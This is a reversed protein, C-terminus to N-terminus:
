LANKKESVLWANGVPDGSIRGCREHVLVGNAFYSRYFTVDFNYVSYKGKFRENRTVKWAEKNIALLTDGIMIKRSPMWGKDRVWFLHDDTTQIKKTQGNEDTYWIERIHDSIKRHIRKVVDTKGDFTIVEDSVLLDKIPKQSGDAMLILTDPVFCPFEGTFNKTPNTSPSVKGKKGSPSGFQQAFCSIANGIFSVPNSIMSAANYISFGVLIANAVNLGSNGYCFTRGAFASNLGYLGQFLEAFGGTACDAFNASDFRKRKTDGFYATRYPIYIEEMAALEPVYTILPELLGWSTEATSITLDHIKILGYNQVRVTFNAEFGPTVNEFDKKPPDVVLVGAPVHTEFTQEIKIEYRDTFPVPEVTFNITVLSRSLMPEVLQQQGAIIDVLGAESSHGSAVVKWSWKGEQLDTILAEGKEDTKVPSLDKRIATNRLYIAANELEQGLINIVKFKASGTLNSTIMAFLKVEFTQETNVGKFIVKDKHYGFSTNDPPTFIIDFTFSDGVHIDSLITIGDENTPLNIRMWSIEAPPVLEVGRLDELGKNSITVTVTKMKGRDMSIDVYGTSPEDVSIIPVAPLLSVNGLFTVRAGQSTIFTYEVGAADPADIDAHLQLGVSRREGPKLSFVDSGYDVTGDLKTEETENGENDVTFARFDFTFNELTEEGPNYLAVKFNMTDAKSMRIDGTQPSCYMRFLDFTDQKIIDFVDPHAGWITFHGSLGIPANYIFTYNGNEDAKVDQFWKFGRTYFGVKLDADPKPTNTRRDIAQGTIVVNEKNTYVEKDTQATAFYESRTIGSTLRGSIQGSELAPKKEIQHYVPKVGGEFTLITGAELGQPVLIDLDVCTKEGPAIRLYATGDNSVRTGPPFGRYEAKSIVIDSANQITVYIDGPDAGNNKSVVVDMDAFGHNNMCIQITAYGGALPLENTTMEIAEGPRNIDDIYFNREYIVKNGSNDFSIATFIINRNEVGDGSARVITESYPQSNSVPVNITKEWTFHSGNLHIQKLHFNEVPSQNIVSIQFLNFVNSILARANGNDDPNIRLDLLIPYVSVIRAPSEKGDSNVGRVAYQIISDGSYYHDIFTTQTTMHANLKQGGKYIHYGVVHPDNNEWTIHPVNEHLMHVELKSVAGVEMSFSVPDAPNENDVADVAAVIYEYVGGTQPHDSLSFQDGAITKIKLSNRYIYYYNVEEEPADWSLIVGTQGMLVSVNQPAQPPTRDSIVSVTNSLTSGAGKKNARVGYCYTGDTDPLDMCELDVIHESILMSPTESCDGEIRFINYHEAREASDWKLLVNGGSQSTATMNKPAQPPDPLDTNYIELISGKNIANGINGSVDTAELIFHGDGKGMDPKLRLVGKWHDDFASVPINVGGGEPPEFRLIPISGPQLPENLLLTIDIEITEIIQVPEDANILIDAVPGDTDILLDTGSPNGTFTNGTMDQGSITIDAVGSPTDKSITYIGNYLLDDTKTLKISEPSTVGDPLILLTPKQSLKEDVALSIQVNGVGFPPMKDFSIEFSPPTADYAIEVWNSLKSSNGAKDLGAVAYYFIGDIPPNNVFTLDYQDTKILTAQNPDSFPADHRYINFTEPREGEEAYQWQLIIGIGATIKPALLVPPSPPGSDLVIDVSNSSPSVGMDDMAAAKIVNSGEVLGVHDVQFHGNPGAQISAVVFANRRIELAIGPEATGHVTVPGTHVLMDKSPETIVPAKPPTIDIVINKEATAINDAKDKALLKIRYIGNELSRVDWYFTFPSQSVTEILVDNMYLEISALGLLATASSSVTLPRHIIQGEEITFTHIVPGETVYTLDISTLDSVAGTASKFQVFVTKSGGGESLKFDHTRTYNDFYANAFTSDESIRMEKASRCALKLVINRNGVTTENNLTGIAPTLLPEHSLYPEFDINGSMKEAITAEQLSGWWNEKAHLITAGSAAANKDTNLKIVSNTITLQSNDEIQVGIANYMILADSTNVVAGNTLNLGYSSNNLCSIADVQPSSRNIELGKGYEIIVHNLISTDSNEVTIGNWNGPSESSSNECTMVIPDLPTGSAILAGSKVILGSGNRFKLITGPTIFLSAGEMVMITNHIAIEKQQGSGIILDETIQGAYPDKWSATEVSQEYEDFVNYAVVAFYWIKSRDLGNVELEKTDPDIIEQGQLDEVSHFDIDQYYLKFGQFGCLNQTAYDQWSIVASDPEKGPAVTISTVPPVPAIIEIKLPNVQFIKNGAQDVSVIAAYYLQNLELATLHFTRADENVWAIPAHNEITDFSDDKKVFVQFGGLDDPPTYNWAIVATDCTLQQIKPQPAPPPTADLFFSYVDTVSSMMNGVLDQGGSIHTVTINGDMEGSMSIDPTVFTDNPHLTTMWTGGSPIVPNTEGSGVMDIIPVANTDMSSNFKITLRFNDVGSVPSIYNAQISSFEPKVTDVINLTVTNSISNGAKDRLINAPSITENGAITFGKTIVIICQTQDNNWIVKNLHGYLKGQPSLNENAETSNDSLSSSNMSENFMFFYRDGISVTGSGDLDDFFVDVIEPQVNDRGLLYHSGQVSNGAMDSVFNGPIVQEDGIITFGQSVTLTLTKANSGWAIANTSGYKLGGFPRLHVNADQTGDKIVSVNMAENFQFVYQDGLSLVDNFDIDIWDLRTFVPAVTDIVPLIQTGVAMNGFLDTLQFPSVSEQGLISFGQTLTIILTKKDVTWRITNTQGFNLDGEVQFHANADTTADVILSTDMEESFHFYYEDGISLSHSGDLDNFEVSELHPPTLESIDEMLWIEPVAVRMSTDPNDHVFQLRLEGNAYYSSPLSFEFQVPNSTPMHRSDHIINDNGDFLSQISGGPDGNFYSTRIKYRKATDLATYDVIVRNKDWAITRDPRKQSADWEDSLTGQSLEPPSIAGYHSSSEESFNIYSFLTAVATQFPDFIVKDSIENGTADPNDVAHYPGSADSDGWWTQRADLINSTNNKVGYERNMFIRNNTLVPNSNNNAEIGDSFNTSISNFTIQPNSNGYLYIGNGFSGWIKNGTLIPSAHHCAIGNQSSNSFESNEVWIDANTIQLTHYYRMIVHNFHSSKEFFSDNFTIGMWDGNMPLSDSGDDNSDGQYSDDKISTFVIKNESTGDAILAGNVIIRASSAFKITVGPDITLFTYLPVSLTNHLIYTSTENPTDKAWIRLNSHNQIENGLIEIYNKTNPCLVNTADPLASAPIRLSIQNNIIINDTITSSGTANYYYIGYTTNNQIHNSDIIPTAYDVCIGTRNDHITNGQDIPTSNSQHYIGHDTNNSIICNKIVSSANFTQIGHSSSHSIESSIVSMDCQSISLGGYLIKVHELISSEANDFYIRNWYGRTGESQGDNNTDGGHNDDTYATFVIPDNDTGIAVLSGEVTIRRNQALKIIAGSRFTIKVGDPISLNSAIYYLGRGLSMDTSITGGLTIKANEANMTTTSILLGNSENPVEDITTLKFYYVQDPSLDSEHYNIAHKGISYPISNDYDPHNSGFLTGDTSIYLLQDALDGDSNLSPEWSLYVSPKTQPIQTVSVALNSIDEPPTNDTNGTSQVPGFPSSHTFNGARDVAAIYYYYDVDKSVTDDFLTNDKSTQGILDYDFGNESRYIDYRSIDGDASQKWTLRIGGSVGSLNQAFLDTPLEPPTTDITIHVIESATKRNGVKDKARAQIIYEGDSPNEWCYQWFGQTTITSAYHWKITGNTNQIGVEVIKVGTDIDSVTGSIIIEKPQLVDGNHPHTLHIEPPTHDSSHAKILMIESVVTRLGSVSNFFLKLNGSEMSSSPIAFHYQVPTQSPLIMPSHIMKDNIDTLTQVTNLADKNLFTILIRYPSTSSLGMYEATIQKEELSYLFSDTNHDGWEQSSTGSVVPQLIGYGYHDTGGANFYSFETGDTLFHDYNIYESVEDGTGPGDGGPGDSAGWWVGTAQITSHSINRIGYAHNGFIECHTLSTPVSTEIGNNFNSFVKCNIINHEGSYELSIGNNANSFIDNNVFTISSQLARFGNSISNSIQSNKISFGTQYAYILGNHYSGGYRLIAHDINCLSGNAQNSVYIGRWDGNLPTSDNGDENFDGGSWDDKYSTFVIPYESTGIASIAGHITLGSNSYFKVIVGPDITLTYEPNMTLTDYIQYTNIEHAEGQYLVKFHLDKNRQNGRMWIGNLTNPGLINNDETGPIASGPLMVGYKNGTITNEKIIPANDAQQFCIGWEHNNTIINRKIEPTARFVHIGNSNGSITNDVDKPTSLQQYYGYHYLGYDNCNSIRNGQLLPSSEDTYIGHSSSKEIHCSVISIDANKMYVAGQNNRGAYRVSVNELRTMFDVVSDSFSIHRWDGPTGISFGDGNTDGGYEDDQYSTFVIKESDSGAAYFAGQVYLGTNMAFKWIVGPEITLKVGTAITSNGSVQYYVNVPSSKLTLSRELVNGLIEIQNNTNPFFTNGANNDPLSSFPVRLSINNNTITNNKIEFSDGTNNCFIGYTANHTITNGDIMPKASQVYIGCKDNYSITNNKILPSANYVYIGHASSQSIESSIISIESQSIYINGNSGGFYIKVYELISSTANEFVIRDWYGKSGMSVGDSNSDGAYTDDSFATFIIPNDHTGIATLTGRVTLRRGAAFKVIVGPKITLAAGYDVTLHNSVYFVGASWTTDTNITGSITTFATTSPTISESIVGHSINGSSDKTRIRVQYATDNDLNQIIYVTAEKGISLAKQWTQGNDTSIELLQDMLDLITNESKTWSLYIFENGPIANLQTVDEPPITDPIENNISIVPGYSESIRINGAHDLTNIRYYYQIGDTVSIDTYQNVFSDVTAITTYPENPSLSREIQYSIVDNAGAGDDASLQWVLCITSGSDEPADFASINSVAEPPTQNVTIVVGNDVTELNGARDRARAYITYQADSPLTWQYQWKSDSQLQSVPMWSIGTGQDIGIEIYQIGSGDDTSHGSIEVISGSLQQDTQPFIITSIPPQIDDTDAREIIWVKSIMARYGNERLFQLQLTGSSHSDPPLYYHYQVPANGPMNLQSHIERDQHDVLRQINGGIASTNDANYYTLFVEYRSEPDITPYDLIVNELDYLVLKDAGWESSITGKTATPGLITGTKENTGADFYNFKSGNMRFQTYNVNESVADGDGLGAGSPGDPSGWWLDHTQVITNSTNNIGYGLNGFIECHTLDATVSYTTEIGHETNAYIKCDIIDHSGTYELSIGDKTHGFVENNLFTINAQHARVGNTKSNSIISNKLLVDSRNAYILGENYSGGYCLIAHDFVCLTGNTENSINIGRWDGNVPSSDYADLNFDGGFRDDKYSTFVIPRESIGSALIAGNITLGANTSFKVIVGPDITFTNEPKITLIGDVQYTNIEYNPGSIVKFHLNSNRTNGRIWIGNHSNPGLINNDESGPIASAPLFVGQYNGTITNEKIIPANDAQHFYIGWEHNNTITNRHIDPTSKLVFIGTSNGSIINEIDKPTSLQNYYGYHYIGYHYCNAIRNKHILPSSENTYIGYSGSQDIESSIISVDAKEMYVAGQNNGGAFRIVVNELRTIFDVVSDSFSIRRWDGPVGTSFGDANTDGGFADDQYSTFVIKDSDTGAAYFAGEVSLGTNQAFKWIVGPEVTMMVGTAITTNGSVQYYLNESSSRLTLSRKLTNGLIEIQNKTNPFLTNGANEHPLCSFPVRLPITNNTITNNQIDFYEGAHSCYIGYTGNNQISNGDITPTSNQVYIGCQDNNSITNNKILPSASSAYIGHSASNAIHSSIVTLESGYSYINGYSGGYYINVYELVCATANEFYLRDWYGKTGQSLGDGNSDGGYTDDTFSTFVVPTNTTGVAILTGRITLRRGAAFKVIVGPKITLTVGTNVVLHNSVYFVGASWTTDTNITGSVTSFATQSPMLSETTVGDSINGSSDITRIRIRYAIDNNLNDILYFEREKGLRLAPQWSAGEDVSIDLLQDMLDLATDNSKTWTVYIFQNGPTANLHTIEEPPTNDPTENSISMVPGYSESVSTNGAQDYAKIRYYYHTDDTPTIDTYQNIGSGVTMISSFNGDLHTSREIEYHIVDNSGKGDDNSLDWLLCISSGSDEPADFASLNLVSAPPTQNVTINIGSAAQELNGARDRARAYITYQGDSPLTWQYLWGGNSKLQTVPFWSIDKGHDIGIEISQIGSSNDTSNGTIDFRNGALHDDSIPSVITSVPPSIDDTDTGEIIWVKSIVARYGNQRIFKLQLSLSNHSDPPLYFHYQVPANGPINLSSHIEINQQDVLRQINGGIGSTNDANFYTLFVEYRSAADISPYDLIVNEMDYLISRGSGWESSITGKTVTPGPITGQSVNTGADFYTFATGHILFNDYNVNESVEDGSGTGTGGPGDPAGWWIGTAQIIASSDNQIGYAQNGFIECNTLHATVSYTTEIGNESNAFLQCDTITHNGSYELSIGDKSNGFIENNRFTINARYARFGNTQSNSIQSNKIVVNARDAYVQGENYSGGYRLVAHDIVCIAGNTQNTIYIGRWDGNSPASNFGDLNFDGGFRDDKYSTFVIPLDSTGSASIAGNITLGANSDFKIIVGPHITLTKEASITLTSYIQYTNIEHNEGAYLLKLHLDSNRVNGHIWIGNHSNPGLINDDETGPLSSAPLCVGQKNGTITNEKIIPADNAQAFFIGWEQNNTITNGQIEPATRNVFIGNENGFITNEIDKPSSQQYYANHYIGHDNCNTIRNGQIHASSEYTYIGYSSSKEIHCSIISCDTQYVYVAGSNNHGAYRIVCNKMKILSTVAQNFHINDWDGPQGNGPGDENTDGGYEDDRISTFIIPNNVDGEAVLASQNITLGCNSHFKVITGPAITLTVGPNVTIDRTIFHVDGTWITDQTIHSDITVSAPSLLPSSIIGSITLFLVLVIKIFPNHKM